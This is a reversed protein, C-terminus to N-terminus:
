KPPDMFQHKTLFAAIAKLAADERKAGESAAYTPNKMNVNHVQVLVEYRSRIAGMTPILRDIIAANLQEATMSVGSGDMSPRGDM